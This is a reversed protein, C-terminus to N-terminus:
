VVNAREHRAVARAASRQSLSGQRATRRARDLGIALDSERMPVADPWEGIKDARSLAVEAWRGLHIHDALRFALLEDMAAAQGQTFALEYLSINPEIDIEACQAFALVAAALQHDPKLQAGRVADIWRTFVNRDVLLATSTEFRASQDRYVAPDYRDINPACFTPTFVDASRLTEAPARLDGPDIPVWYSFGESDGVPGTM